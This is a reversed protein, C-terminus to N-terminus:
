KKRTFNKNEDDRDTAGFLPSCAAAAARKEKRDAMIKYNTCRQMM